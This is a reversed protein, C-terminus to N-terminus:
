IGNLHQEPATLNSRIMLCRFILLSWIKTKIKLALSLSDIITNTRAINHLDLDIYTENSKM